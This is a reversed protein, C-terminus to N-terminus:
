TLLLFTLFCFFSNIKLEGGTFQCELTKGPLIRAMILHKQGGYGFTYSPQESFYVGAGFKGRSSPKFNNNMINDVINDNKTGHFGYIAESEVAAKGYTREIQLKKANFNQELRPNIYFEVHTIEYNGAGQGGAGGMMRLPNNQAVPKPNSRNLMRLFRSEVFAFHSELPDDINTGRKSQITKKGMAYTQGFPVANPVVAPQFKNVTYSIIYRPFVQDPNFVVYEDYLVGGTGKTDRPAFLSDYGMNKLKKADMRPMAKDAVLSNGLLVDCLILKNSGKTYIKQASKSSDAALYIGAGYMGPNAPLRFGSKTIGDVGENTTGHFKKVTEPARHFLETSVKLFRIKLEPNKVEVIKIVQPYWNHGPQVYKKVQDEVDLYDRLTEGAKLLEVYEVGKRLRAEAQIKKIQQEVKQKNAQRQKEEDERQKKVEAEKIKECDQCINNIAHQFCKHGRCVHGCARLIPCVEYCKIDATNEFCHKQATHECPLRVRVKTVCSMTRVDEFCKKEGEHQCGPFLFNVQTKCKKERQDQECRKTDNHGCILHVFPTTEKCPKHTHPPQCRRNCDHIGCSMIEMCDEKCFSQLTLAESSTVRVPANRHRECILSLANSVCGRNIMERLLPKWTPSDLFMEMNGVFYVGRRARSQAVCRRNLEGVFGIKKNQNSRVLSVIVFDNEDGQYMDVTNIKISKKAEADDKGGGKQGAQGSEMKSVQLGDKYVLHGYTKEYEKMTQRILATQGRYMALITIKDAEYGQQVLFLALKVVRKAEEANKVSRDKNEPETHHWFFHSKELCKAPTNNIIREQNTKLDPYIDLLLQAFEHRQRNQMELTSFPLQNNILREMMSLDFNYDKRLHYSDVPPRLQQHDGILLMYKTWTGISALLQPELM